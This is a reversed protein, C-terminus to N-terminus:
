NKSIYTTEFLNNAEFISKAYVRSIEILEEICQHLIDGGVFIENVEKKLIDVAEKRAREAEIHEKDSYGIYGEKTIKEKWYKIVISSFYKSPRRIKKLVPVIYDSFNEISKDISLKISKDLIDRNERSTFECKFYKSIQIKVYSDVKEILSDQLNKRFTAQRENDELLEELKQYFQQILIEFTKEKGNEIIFEQFVIDLPTLLENISVRRADHYLKKIDEESILSYIENLCKHRALAYKVIGKSVIYEIEKDVKINGRGKNYKVGMDSFVEEVADKFWEMRCAGGSLVIKSLNGGNLVASIQEKLLYLENKVASTYSLSVEGNDSIISQVDMPIRYQYEDEEVQRNLCRQIVNCIIVEENNEGGNKNYFREKEERIDSILYNDPNVVDALQDKKLTAKTNEDVIKYNSKEDNKYQRFIMNEILSAGLDCSRLCLPVQKNNHILAFDITRSGYDIILVYKNDEEGNNDKQGNSTYNFYAAENESIVWQINHGIAEKIFEGYQRKTESDWQSPAAIYLSFDILKGKKYLIASNNECIKQFILKVYASFAEKQKDSLKNIKNKLQIEIGCVKNSELEEKNNDKNKSVIPYKDLVFSYTDQNPDYLKYIRSPYTKIDNDQLSLNGITEGNASIKVYSAATNCHGFDIGIILKENKKRAMIM